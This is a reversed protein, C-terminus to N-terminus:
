FADLDICRACAIGVKAYLRLQYLKTANMYPFKLFQVRNEVFPINIM